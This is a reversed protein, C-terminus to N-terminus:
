KGKILRAAVASPLSAMLDLIQKLETFTFPGRFDLMSYTRETPDKDLETQPVKFIVEHVKSMTFKLRTDDWLSEQKLNLGLATTTAMIKEKRIRKQREEEKFEEHYKEIKPIAEEFMSGIKNVVKATTSPCKARGKMARVLWSPDTIKIKFPKGDNNNTITFECPIDLYNVVAVVQYPWVGRCFDAPTHNIICRGDALNFWDENQLALSVKVVSCDNYTKM